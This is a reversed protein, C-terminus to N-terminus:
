SVLVHHNLCCFRDYKVLVTVTIKEAVFISPDHPYLPHLM